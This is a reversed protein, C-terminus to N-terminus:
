RDLKSDLGFFCGKGISEPVADKLIGCERGNGVGFGSKSLFLHTNVIICGKFLWDRSLSVVVMLLAIFISVAREAIAESRLCFRITFAAM